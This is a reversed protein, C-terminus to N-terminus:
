KSNAYWHRMKHPRVLEEAAANEFGSGVAESMPSSLAHSIGKSDSRWPESQALAAREVNDLDLHLSASGLVDFENVLITPAKVNLALQEFTEFFCVLDVKLFVNAANRMGM